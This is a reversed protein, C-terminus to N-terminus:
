MASKVVLPTRRVAFLGSRKREAFTPQSLSLEDIVESAPRNEVTSAIETLHEDLYTIGIESKGICCSIACYVRSGGVRELMKQALFRAYVNLTVDAKTADKGWPCGGGIRCNGGYFDVALKRGTTGCDGMTSHRVYAGTGNIVLTYDTGSEPAYAAVVSGVTTEVNRREAEDRMPAAVIVDTVRDGDMTVQTKIDLGINFSGKRAEDYLRTGIQRAIYHDKPMMETRMDSEAMGWMIGQDGWGEANVGQAIQPSQMSTHITIDLDDASFANDTGWALAYERTYGIERVAERVFQRLNDETFQAVSTVEGGLTVYNDKIQCEMAFRARSDKELYRDLIYAVVYDCTADPHGLSVFESTRKM